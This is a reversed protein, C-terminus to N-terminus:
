LASRTVGAISAPIVVLTQSNRSNIAAAYHKADRAMEKSAAAARHIDHPSFALVTFMITAVASIGFTFINSVVSLKAVDTQLTKLDSRVDKISIDLTDLRRNINTDMEGLKAGQQAVAVRMEVDPPLNAAGTSNGPIKVQACLLPAFLALAPGYCRSKM